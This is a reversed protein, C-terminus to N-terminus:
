PRHEVAGKQEREGGRVSPVLACEWVHVIEHGVLADSCGEGIACGCHVALQVGAAVHLTVKGQNTDRVTAVDAGFRGRGHPAVNLGGDLHRM